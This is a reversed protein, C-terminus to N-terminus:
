QEGGIFALLNELPEAVVLVPCDQYKMVEIQLSPDKFITLQFGNPDKKLEDLRAWRNRGTPSYGQSVATGTKNMLVYM